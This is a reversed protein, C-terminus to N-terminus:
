EEKQVGRWEFCHGDARPESQCIGRKTMNVCHYCCHPDSRMSEVAADREAELQKVKKTAERLHDELQKKANKLVALEMALADTRKKELQLDDQLQQIFALADGALESFGDAMNCDEWYPCKKCGDESCCELGKKIEDPTKTM